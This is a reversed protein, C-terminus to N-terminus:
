EEVFGRKEYRISKEMMRSSQAIWLFQWVKLTKVGDIDHMM